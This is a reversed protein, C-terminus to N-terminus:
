SFKRVELKSISADTGRAPFASLNRAKMIFFPYEVQAQSGAVIM